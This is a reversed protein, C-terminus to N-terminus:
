RYQQWAGRAGARRKSGVIGLRNIVLVVFEVREKGPRMDAAVSRADARGPFEIIAKNGVALEMDDRGDREVTRGASWRLEAVTIGFEAELVAEDLLVVLAQPGHDAHKRQDFQRGAVLAAPQASTVDADIQRDPQLFAEAIPGGIAAAAIPDIVAAAREILIVPEDAPQQLLLDRFLEGDAAFKEMLGGVRDSALVVGSEVETGDVIDVIM